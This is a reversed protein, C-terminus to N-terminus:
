RSVAAAGAASGAGAPAPAREPAGTLRGLDDETKIIHTRDGQTRRVKVKGLDTWAAHIKGERKAQRAKFLLFENKQTLNEAVFTASLVAPTLSTGRPARASRLERRAGYMEQRKNFSQFKAIIARPKGAKPKGIRHSVDIDDPKVNVGAAKAIEIILKDTNENQQEPIGSFNLCQRRSYQELDNVQESLKGVEEKLAAIEEDKKAVAAAVADRILPGLVREKLVAMVEEDEFAAILSEKTTPKM